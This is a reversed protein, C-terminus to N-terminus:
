SDKFASIPDALTFLVSIDPPPPHIPRRVLDAERGFIRFVQQLGSYFVKETLRSIYHRSLPAFLQLFVSRRTTFIVLRTDQHKGITINLRLRHLIYIDTCKIVSFMYIGTTHRAKSDRVFSISRKELRLQNEEKGKSKEKRAYREFHPQLSQSCLQLPSTSQGRKWSGQHGSVRCQERLWDKAM